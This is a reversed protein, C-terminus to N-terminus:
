SIDECMRPLLTGACIHFFNITCHSRLLYKVRWLSGIKNYYFDINLKVRARNHHSNNEQCRLNYILALSKFVFYDSYIKKQKWGSNIKIFQLLHSLPSWMLLNSISVLLHHIRYKLATVNRCSSRASGGRQRGVM